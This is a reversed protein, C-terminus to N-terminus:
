STSRAREALLVAADLAQSLSGSDAQGTGALSLATGHDVSTRIIPLGLTVNVARGFGLHKLVPLGQDHYMALVADTQRLRPPTFATDAPLPGDLRMGLRRMEEVVPTIVRIEEEGLEGQEGAHPNLGLVMIHPDAIAFRYRLDHHLVQLVATLRQRTIAGPVDRLPLHTTVLAVRLGPAMLMMVPQSAGTRAALWETHGSFTIGARAIVAKNVPATTLAQFHGALCGDTARAMTRIVYPSNASDARGPVCPVALPEPLCVLEGAPAPHPIAGPQYPRLKLPLALRQAREELLLPDAIVVLEAPHERQAIQICLDPGIGAPEGATIAVRPIVM